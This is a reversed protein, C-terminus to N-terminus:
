IRCAVMRHIFEHLDPHVGISYLSQSLPSRRLFFDLPGHFVTFAKRCLMASRSESSVERIAAHPILLHVCCLLHFSVGHLFVSPKDKRDNDPEESIPPSM